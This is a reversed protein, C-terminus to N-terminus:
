SIALPLASPHMCSVLIGGTGVGILLVLILLCEFEFM